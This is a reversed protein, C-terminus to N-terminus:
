QTVRGLFFNSSIKLGRSVICRRSPCVSLCVSLCVGLSLLARAQVYRLATVFIRSYICENLCLVPMRCVSPRVFTTFCCRARCACACACTSAGCFLFSDSVFRAVCKHLICHRPYFWLVRGDWHTDVRRIQDSKILGHLCLYSIVGM